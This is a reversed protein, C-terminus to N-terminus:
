PVPLGSGTPITSPGTPKAQSRSGVRDPTLEYRHTNGLLEGHRVRAEWAHEAPETTACSSGRQIGTLALDRELDVFVGDHHRRNGGGLLDDEGRALPTPLAEGLPRGLLQSLSVLPDQFGRAVSPCPIVRQGRQYALYLAGRGQQDLQQTGCPHLGIRAIGQMQ